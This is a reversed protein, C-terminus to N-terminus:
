QEQYRLLTLSNPNCNSKIDHCFLRRRQSFNVSEQDEGRLGFAIFMPNNPLRLKQKGKQLYNPVMFGKKPDM